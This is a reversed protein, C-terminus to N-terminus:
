LLAISHMWPESIQEKRRVTTKQARLLMRHLRAYVDEPANSVIAEDWFEHWHQKALKARQAARFEEEAAVCALRRQEKYARAEIQKPHDYLGWAEPYNHHGTEVFGLRRSSIINQEKLSDLIRSLQEAKIKAGFAKYIQARICEQSALLKLLREKYYEDDHPDVYM